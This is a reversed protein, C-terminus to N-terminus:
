DNYFFLIKPLRSYIVERAFQMPTKEQEASIQDDIQQSLERFYKPDSRISNEKAFTSLERLAELDDDSITEEKSSLADRADDFVSIADDHEQVLRGWLKNNNNIKALVTLLKARNAIDRKPVAPEFLLTQNGSVKKNLIYWTPQDLRAAALDDADLRFRSTIIVEDDSYVKGRTLDFKQVPRSTGVYTIARLLSTKGAENPGLIAVLKGSTKLETPQAFRRFGNLTISQLELTIGGLIGVNANSSPM